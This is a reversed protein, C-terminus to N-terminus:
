CWTVETWWWIQGASVILTFNNYMTVSVLQGFTREAGTVVGRETALILRTGWQGASIADLRRSNAAFGAGVTLILASNLTFYQVSQKQKLRSAWQLKYWQGDKLPINRDSNGWPWCYKVASGLLRSILKIYIYVFGQCLTKITKMLIIM